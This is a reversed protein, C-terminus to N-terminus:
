TQIVITAVCGSGNLPFSDWTLNLPSCIASDAVVGTFGVPSPPCQVDPDSKACLFWTSGNCWLSLSLTGDSYYWVTGNYVLPVSNPLTCGSVGIFSAYLTAPLLNSPCCGTAISLARAVFAEEQSPVQEVQPLGDWHRRFSESMETTCNLGRCLEHLRGIMETGSRRCITNPAECRCPETITMM